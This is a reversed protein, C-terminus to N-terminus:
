VHSAKKLTSSAPFVFMSSTLPSAQHVGRSSPDGTVTAHGGVFRDTNIEKKTAKAGRSSEERRARLRIEQM